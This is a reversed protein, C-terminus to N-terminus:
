TSTWPDKLFRLTNPNDPDEVAICYIGSWTRQWRWGKATGPANREIAGAMLDSSLSEGCYPCRPSSGKKFHGGCSCSSLYEEASQEIEGHGFPSRKRISEPVRWLDLLALMGCTDCYAYASDSFGSHWLVYRFSRNCHGCDAYTPTNVPESVIRAGATHAPRAPRPSHRRLFNFGLIAGAIALVPLAITLSVM